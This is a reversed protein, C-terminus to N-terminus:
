RFATLHPCLAASQDMPFGVKLARERWKEDGKKEVRQEWFSWSDKLAHHEPGSSAAAAASEAMKASLSTTFLCPASNSSTLVSRVSHLYLLFFFHPLCASVIGEM